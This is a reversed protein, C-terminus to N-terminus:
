GDKTVVPHFLTKMERIGLFVALLLTIFLFIYEQESKWYFYRAISLLVLIDLGVLFAIFILAQQRSSIKFWRGLWRLSEWWGVCLLLATSIATPFAYRAWPIIHNPSLLEAGGRALTLGWISTLAMGMFVLMPWPLRRFSRLTAVFVGILGVATIWQLIKYISQGGLPYVHARATTAWFTQFLNSASSRYYQSAGQWDQLSAIFVSPSSQSFIKGLIREAQPSLRLWAVEASPNRVLNHFPQGGWTGAQASPPDFQPSGKREGEALVLGDYYITLNQINGEANPAPIPILELWGNESEFPVDFVISYFTPQTTLTVNQTPSFFMEETNETANASKM